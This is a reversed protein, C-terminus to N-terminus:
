ACICEKLHKPIVFDLKGTLCADLREVIHKGYGYLMKKSEVFHHMEDLEVVIEGKPIPKQYYEDAFDRIWHMITTDHFHLIKGITRFSFGYCYLAVARFVMKEDRREDERTFQFGCGKCRYCQKGKRKGWKVCDTSNCARCIKQHDPNRKKEHKAMYLFVM